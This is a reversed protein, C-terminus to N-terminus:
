ISRTTTPCQVSGSMLSPLFGSGLVFWRRSFSPHAESIERTKAAADEKQEGISFFVEFRQLRTTCDYPRKSSNIQMSIIAYSGDTDNDVLHLNKFDHRGSVFIDKGFLPDSPQLSSKVMEIWEGANELPTMTWPYKFEIKIPEM